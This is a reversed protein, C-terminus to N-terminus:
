NLNQGALSPNSRAFPISGEHGAMVAAVELMEQRDALQDVVQGVVGVEGAPLRSRVPM